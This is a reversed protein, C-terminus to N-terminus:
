QEKGRLALMLSSHSTCLNHWEEYDSLFMFTKLIIWNRNSLFSCSINRERTVAMVWNEDLSLVFVLSYFRSQVTMLLFWASRVNTSSYSFPLLQLKDVEISQLLFARLRRALSYFDPTPCVRDIDMYIYLHSYLWLTNADIRFIAAHPRFVYHTHKFIVTSVFM